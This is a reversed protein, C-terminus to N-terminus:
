GPGDATPEEEECMGTLDYHFTVNGGAYGGGYEVPYNPDPGESGITAHGGELTVSINTLCPKHKPTHCSCLTCACLAFAVLKTPM